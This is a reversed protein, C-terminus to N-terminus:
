RRSQVVNASVGSPGSSIQTIQSGGRRRGFLGRRGQNVANINVNGGFGAAHVQVAQAGRRGRNQVNVNVANAFPVFQVAQPALIVQPAIVQPVVVAPAVVSASVVQGFNCASVPAAFLALCLALIALLALSKKM